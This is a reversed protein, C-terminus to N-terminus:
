FLFPLPFGDSDLCPLGLNFWEKKFYFNLKNFTIKNTTKAKAKLLNRAVQASYLGDVNVIKPYYDLAALILLLADALLVIALFSLSDKSLLLQRFRKNEM